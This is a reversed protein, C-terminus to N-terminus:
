PKWKRKSLKFWGELNILTSWYIESIRKTTLSHTNPILVTVLVLSYLFIIKVEKTEVWAISSTNDMLIKFTQLYNVKGMTSHHHGKGGRVKM